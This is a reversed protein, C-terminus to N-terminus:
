NAIDQLHLIKQVEQECQKTRPDFNLLSLANWTIYKDLQKIEEGLAPFMTEDFHCDTFRTTFSDGTLSELYKIISLSEFGIYIRLRKQPGMKTRQPPYIPVYVVYGFIRLHSINPEHGFVSQLPSFKHYTTPKIRILAAAHLITHGWASVLLKIRM